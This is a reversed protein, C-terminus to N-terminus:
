NGHERVERELNKIALDTTIYTQKAVNRLFEFTDEIKNIENNFMGIVRNKDKIAKQYMDDLHNNKVILGTILYRKETDTLEEYPINKLEEIPKIQMEEVADEVVANVLEESADIIENNKNKM